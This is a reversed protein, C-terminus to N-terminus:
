KEQQAVASARSNAYHAPKLCSHNLCEFVHDMNKSSLALQQEQACEEPGSNRIYNTTPVRV